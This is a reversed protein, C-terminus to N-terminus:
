EVDENVKTAPVFQSPLDAQPSHSEEYSSYDVTQSLFEKKSKPRITEPLETSLTNVKGRYNCRYCMVITKKGEEYDATSIMTNCEPCYGLLKTIKVKSLDVEEEKKVYKKNRTHKKKPIEPSEISSETSVKETSSEEISSDEVKKRPRGRKKKVKSETSSVEISETSLKKKNKSGKPRGRKKAKKEM